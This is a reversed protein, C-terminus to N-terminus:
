PRPALPSPGSTGNEPIAERARVSRATRLIMGAVFAILVVIVLVAWIGKVIPWLEVGLGLACTAVSIFLYVLQNIYCREVWARNRSLARATSIEREILHPVYEDGGFLAAYLAMVKSSFAMHLLCFGLGLVATAAGLLFLVGSWYSVKDSVVLAVIGAVIGTFLTVLVKDHELAIECSKEIFFRYRYECIEQEDM